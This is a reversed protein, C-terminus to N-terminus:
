GDGPKEALRARIKRLYLSLAAAVALSSGAIVLDSSAGARAYLVIARVGFLLALCIASGILVQHAVILKM